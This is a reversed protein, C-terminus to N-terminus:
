RSSSPEGESESAARDWAKRVGWRIGSWAYPSGSHHDLLRLLDGVAELIPGVAESEPAAVPKHVLRNRISVGQNLASLVPDLYDRTKKDRGPVFWLGRSVSLDGVLEPLYNTLISLLPPSPAETVLWGALPVKRQVFEKVGIEAAAIGVILASRPNEYVQAEAERLLEHGIPEDEGRELADQLEKEFAESSSITPVVSAFAPPVEWPLDQWRAGDPSWSFTWMRHPDHGGGLHRHWRIVRFVRRAARGMEILAGRLLDQLSAPLADWAAGGSRPLAGFIVIQQTLEKGGNVALQLFAERNNMSIGWKGTAVCITDGRSLPPELDAGVSCEEPTPRRFRIELGHDKELVVVLDRDNKLHVGPILLTLRLTVKDGLEVSGLPEVGAM